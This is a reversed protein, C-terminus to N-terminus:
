KSQRKVRGGERRRGVRNGLGGERKQEKIRGIKM